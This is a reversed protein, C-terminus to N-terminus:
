KRPSLKNRGETLTAGDWHLWHHPQLARLKPEHERGIVEGVAKYDLAQSLPLVYTEAVNGRFDASVAAPRQTVGIIEIGRHRGQLVLRLMGEQGRPLKTVPFGLNMEEVVLMLKRPDSGDEYPAQAHWLFEALHHLKAVYDGAPQYAIRFGARWRRRMIARVEALTDAPEALGERGYEGMPDFVILRKHGRLLAKVRTSKGSGRRGYVAICRADKVIM